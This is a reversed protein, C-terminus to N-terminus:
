AIQQTAAHAGSKADSGERQGHWSRVSISCRELIGMNVTATLDLRLGLSGITHASRRVLISVCERAIMVIFMSKIYAKNICFQRRSVREVSSAWRSGMEDWRKRKKSLKKLKYIKRERRIKNENDGVCVFKSRERRLHDGHPVSLREGSEWVHGVTTTKTHHNM